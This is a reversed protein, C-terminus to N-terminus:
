RTLISINFGSGDRVFRSPLKRKRYVVPTHATKNEDIAAIKIEFKLSQGFPKLASGREVRKIELGERLPERLGRLKHAHAVVDARDLLLAALLALAQVGILLTQETPKLALADLKDQAVEDLVGVAGVVLLTHVHPQRDLHDAQRTLIAIVLCIQDARIGITLTMQSRRRELM